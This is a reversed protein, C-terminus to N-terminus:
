SRSSDYGDCKEKGAGSARNNNARSSSGAQIAWLAKPKNQHEPMATMVVTVREASTGDSLRQVPFLEMRAYAESRGRNRKRLTSLPNWEGSGRM